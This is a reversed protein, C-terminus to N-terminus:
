RARAPVLHWITTYGAAAGPDCPRGDITVWAHAELFPSRRAGVHLEVRHGRRALLGFAVLSEFFCTSHAARAAADRAAALCSPVPEIPAGRRLPVCALAATVHKLALGRLGVRLALALAHAEIRLRLSPGRTTRPM